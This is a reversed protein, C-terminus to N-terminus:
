VFAEIIGLAVTSPMGPPRWPRVTCQGVDMEIVNDDKGELGEFWTGGGLYEDNGNM